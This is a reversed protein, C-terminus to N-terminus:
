TETKNLAHKGTIINIAIITLRSSIYQQSRKIIKQAIGYTISM